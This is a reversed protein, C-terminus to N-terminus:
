NGDDMIARVRKLFPEIDLPKQFLAHAACDDIDPVNSSVIIIKIGSIKNAAWQALAVGNMEGPMSVDTVLLQIDGSERLYRQAESADCAEFVEFGADRLEEALHIRILVEDEVVLARIRRDTEKGYDYAGDDMLGRM